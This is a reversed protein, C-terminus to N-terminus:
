WRAAARLIRREWGAIRAEDYEEPVGEYLRKMTHAAALAGVLRALFRPRTRGQLGRALADTVGVSPVRADLFPAILDRHALLGRAFADDLEAEGFRQFHVRLADLAAFRAGEDRLYAYPYSWVDAARARGRGSAVAIARAALHGARMSSALGAGNSPNVQCAADGIVVWGDGVLRTRSRRAPLVGGGRRQPEGRPVGLRKALLAVQGRLREPARDSPLALGVDALGEWFTMIWGFGGAYGPLMIDRLGDPGAADGRPLLEKMAVFVDRARVPDPAHPHAYPVQGDIVGKVGSADIVWPAEFVEAKAAAGRSRTREGRAGRVSAASAIGTRGDSVLPGTVEVDDHLEVNPHRAVEEVVTDLWRKRDLYLFPLPRGLAAAPPKLITALSPSAFAPTETPRFISPPPPALGVEAFIGEEVVDCWDHGLRARRVRDLVLVRLGANAATRAAVLGGSGAGVVIVDYASVRRGGRETRAGHAM